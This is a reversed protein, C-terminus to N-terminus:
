VKLFKRVSMMSGWVGIFAGIAILLGAVQWMHPFVPLLSFFMVEIRSGWNNFLYSYGFGIILIPIVAGLIGLLMGEIFFPWRIFSNTAGVLKMIQIERKRAVITLKITNAILFMATFMMGAVLILGVTRIFDTVIFLREVYDRGYNVREVYDLTEINSAVRETLQPTTARVVYSDNLPNEERISEFVAGSENLSDILQNLGEEKDVYTITDINPIKEIEALLEAQQEDTATLEIYVKIEVDDEINTAISNVNMILLLFVGVVFLMVAVASISAFTMWSNRGLNRSGERVHRGLTRLKM